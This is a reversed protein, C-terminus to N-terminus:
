TQRSKDSLYGAHMAAFADGVRFRLCIRHMHQEDHHEPKWGAVLDRAYRAMVTAAIARFGRFHHVGAHIASQAAHSLATM